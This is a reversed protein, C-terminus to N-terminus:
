REVRTKGEADAQTTTGRSGTLAVNRSLRSRAPPLWSGCSVRHGSDTASHASDGHWAGGTKHSGPRGAAWFLATAAGLFPGLDRNGPWGLLSGGDSAVGADGPSARRAGCGHPHGRVGGATAGAGPGYADRGAAPLAPRTLV